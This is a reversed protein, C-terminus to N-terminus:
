ARAKRLSSKAKRMVRAARNVYRVVGGVDLEMYAAPLRDIARCVSNDGREQFVQAKESM